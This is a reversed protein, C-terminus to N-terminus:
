YPRTPESIHILSLDRGARERRAGDAGSPAASSPRGFLARMPSDSTLFQEFDPRVLEPSATPPAAATLAATVFPAPAPTPAEAGAADRDEGDDIGYVVRQIANIAVVEGNSFTYM